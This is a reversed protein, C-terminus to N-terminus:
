LVYAEEEMLLDLADEFSVAMGTDTRALAWKVKDEAFGMAKLREVAVDAPDPVVRVKEDLGYLGFFDTSRQSVHATYILKSDLPPLSALSDDQEVAVDPHESMPWEHGSLIDAFGPERESTAQTYDHDFDLLMSHLLEKTDAPPCTQPRDKAYCDVCENYARTIAAKLFAGRSILPPTWLTYGQTWARELGSEAGIVDLVAPPGLALLHYTWEELDTLIIVYSAIM